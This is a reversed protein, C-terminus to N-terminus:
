HGPFYPSEANVQERRQRFGHAKTAGPGEHDIQACRARRHAQGVIADRATLVRMHILDFAGLIPAHTIAQPETWEGTLVLRVGNEHLHSVGIRASQRCGRVGLVQARYRSRLRFRLFQLRGRLCRGCRRFLRGHRRFRGEHMRFRRRRGWGRGCPRRHRGWPIRRGLGDGCLRLHGGHPRCNRRGHECRLLPKGDPSRRGSGCLRRHRGHRCRYRRRYECRVLPKGDPSRRGSGCHRRHRGRRCRNRRRQECRFM